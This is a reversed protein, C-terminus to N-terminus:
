AGWCYASEFLHSICLGLHDEDESDNDPHEAPRDQRRRPRVYAPLPFEPDDLLRSFVYSVAQFTEGQTPWTGDGLEIGPFIFQVVNDIRGTNMRDRTLRIRHRINPPVMNPDAGLSLLQAAAHYNQQSLAYTLPTNFWSGADAPRPSFPTNAPLEEDISRGSDILRQIIFATTTRDRFCTAFRLTVGNIANTNALLWRRTAFSDQTGYIANMLVLTQTEEQNLEVLVRALAQVIDLSTDERAYMCVFHNSTPMTEANTEIEWTYCIVAHELNMSALAEEIMNIYISNMYHQTEKYRAGDELIYRLTQPMSNGRHNGLIQQLVRNRLNQRSVDDLLTNEKEKELLHLAIRERGGQIAVQMERTLEELDENYSSLAPSHYALELAIDELASNRDPDFTRYYTGWSAVRDLAYQLPNSNPFNINAITQNLNAGRQILYRVVDLRNAAVATHLPSLVNRTIEVSDPSPPPLDAPRNNPFASNLFVHPDVKRARSVEEYLDLIHRIQDVSFNNSIAALVLPSREQEVLNSVSIYTPIELQRAADDYFIHYRNPNMFHDPFAFATAIKDEPSLERAIQILLEPPLSQLNVNGGESPMAMMALTLFPNPIVESFDMDNWM